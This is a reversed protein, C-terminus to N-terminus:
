KLKIHKPLNSGSKKMNKNLTQNIENQKSQIAPFKTSPNLNKNTNQTIM